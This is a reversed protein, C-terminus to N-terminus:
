SRQHEGFVEAEFRLIRAGRRWADAALGAKLCAQQLFSERDFGWELAVQPLLLGRRHGQEIVLGDRGIVIEEPSAPTLPGLVSIEVELLPLDSLQIPTFRPDNRSAARAMSVVAEALSPGRPELMGICGRLEGAVHLTVFAAGPRRVAAPVDAPELEYTQGSAAAEVTRRALRLLAERADGDLADRTELWDALARDAVDNV